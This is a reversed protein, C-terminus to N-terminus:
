AGEKGKSKKGSAPGGTPGMMSEHNLVAILEDRRKPPLAPVDALRKALESRFSYGQFAAIGQSVVSQALEVWQGAGNELQALAEALDEKLSESEKSRKELTKELEAIREHARDLARQQTQALMTFGEALKMTGAAEAGKPTLGPDDDDGVTCSTVDVWSLEDDDDREVQKRLVYAGPKKLVDDADVVVERGNHLRFVQVEEPTERLMKYAVTVFRRPSAEGHLQERSM